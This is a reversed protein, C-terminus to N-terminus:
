AAPAVRPQWLVVDSDAAAVCPLVWGEAKEDSSLGPWEIRHHTRGQLVRAMCERCTGNRCSSRMVVGAALAAQLLTQGPAVPVSRGLPEIRLAMTAPRAQGPVTPGPAPTPSPGSGPEDM